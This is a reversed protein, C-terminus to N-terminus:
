ILFAYDEPVIKSLQKRLEALTMQGVTGTELLKHMEEAIQKTRNRVEAVKTLPVTDLSVTTGSDSVSRLASRQINMSKYSPKTCGILLFSVCVAVTIIRKM